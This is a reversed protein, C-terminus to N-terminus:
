FLRCHSVIWVRGALLHPGRSKIVLGLSTVEYRNHCEITGTQKAMDFIFFHDQTIRTLHINPM